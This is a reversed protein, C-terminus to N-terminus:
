LLPDRRTLDNLTISRRLMQPKSGSSQPLQITPAPGFIGAEPFSQDSHACCVLVTSLNSKGGNAQVM